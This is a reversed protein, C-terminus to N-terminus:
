NNEDETGECAECGFEVRDLHTLLFWLVKLYVM